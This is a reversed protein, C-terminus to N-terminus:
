RHIVALMIRLGTNTFDGWSRGLVYYGRRVLQWGERHMQWTWQDWGRYWQQPTFHNTIEELIHDAIKTALYENPNNRPEGLHSKLYWLLITKLGKLNEVLEQDM